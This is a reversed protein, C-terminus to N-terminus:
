DTKPPAPVGEAPKGSEEQQKKKLDAQAKAIIKDAAVKEKDAKIFAKTQELSEELNTKFLQVDTIDRLTPIEMDFYLPVQTKVKSDNGRSHNLLLQRVTLNMDPMTKSKGDMTKGKSGNYSIDFQIRMVQETLETAPNEADLSMSIKKETTTAGEPTDQVTDESKSM